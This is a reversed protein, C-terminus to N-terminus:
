KGEAKGITGFPNATINLKHRRRTV